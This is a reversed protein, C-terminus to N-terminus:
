INQTPRFLKGKLHPLGKKDDRLEFRIQQQNEDDQTIEYGLATVAPMFVPLKFHAEVKARNEFHIKKELSALVRALSFMGHAIATKFGFMKALVPYLHHPNFDGSVTAYKRGTGAPIRIIEATELFHDDAKKHKKKKKGKIRSLYRSTGQWVVKKSSSAQLIFDTEIGKQTKRVQALACSLQLPEDFGLGCKQEFSQYIQILGLPNFPFFDSTIYRGLLGIFLTQLYSMPITNNNETDFGCVRCYELIRNRDLLVNNMVIRTSRIDALSVQANSRFPSLLLAKLFVGAMSPYQSICVEATPAHFAKSGTNKDTKM